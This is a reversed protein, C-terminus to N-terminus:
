SRELAAPGDEGALRALLAGRAIHWNGANLMINIALKVEDRPLGLGGYADGEGLDVGALACLLRLHCCHFDEETTPVGNIRIGARIRSPLSQWWPGFWRGGRTFSLNFVRYYSRRMPNLRRGGVVVFHHEDYHAEPHDLTIEFSDLFANHAMLDRRMAYTGNTERYPKPKGDDGRLVIVERPCFRTAGAAISLGLASLKGIARIRSRYLAFPSPATRDHDLLGLSSLREVAVIVPLRRYFKPCYRTLGAYHDNDRSYFVWDADKNQARCLLNAIFAHMAERILRSSCNPLGLASEIATPDRLTLCSIFPKDEPRRGDGGDEIARLTVPSEPYLLTDDRILQDPISISMQVHEMM